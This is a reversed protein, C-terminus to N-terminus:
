HAGAHKAALKWEILEDLLFEEARSVAASVTQPTKLHPFINALCTLREAMEPYRHTRRTLDLSSRLSAAVGALLPLAVPLFKGLFAGAWTYTFHGDALKDVLAVLVSFPALITAWKAALHWRHYAHAAQAGKQRFHQIQHELRQELYRQRRDEFTAAAASKQAAPMLGVTLALRRFQPLHRVVQPHLPDLWGRSSELGRVLEAAFRTELWRSQTRRKQIRWSIVLSTLVLVLEAAIFAIAWFRVASHDASPDSHLFALYFLSPVAGLVTAIAHLKIVRAIGRRFEPAKQNARESLASRFEEVNGFSQYPAGERQLLENLQKIEPDEAPWAAVIDDLKVLAPADAPITLVPRHLSHAMEILEGTGGLGAAPRGNWVTLLIDCADVLRTAQSHYCDPRQTDGRLVRFTGGNEGRQAAAIFEQAKQWEAEHGAFDKAFEEEPLPLLLHITIGLERACELAILDAGYAASCYLDLVGGHEAAQQQMRRFTERLALSVAGPQPLQRHGSFAIVFRPTIM